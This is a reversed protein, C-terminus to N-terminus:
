EGYSMELRNTTSGLIKFSPVEFMEPYVDRWNQMVPDLPVTARKRRAASQNASHMGRMKFTKLTLVRYVKYPKGGNPQWRTFEIEGRNMFKTLISSANHINNFKAASFEMQVGELTRRIYETPTENYERELM